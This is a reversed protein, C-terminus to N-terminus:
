SSSPPMRPPDPPRRPHGGCRSPRPRGATAALRPGPRPRRRSPTPWCRATPTTWVPWCTPSTATQKAAPRQAADQRGRGGGAAAATAAWRPEVRPRPRRRGEGRQGGPSPEQRIRRGRPRQAVGGQDLQVDAVDARHLHHVEGLCPTPPRRSRARRRPPGSRRSRPRATGSANQSSYTAIVRARLHTTARSGGRGLGSTAGSIVPAVLHPSAM